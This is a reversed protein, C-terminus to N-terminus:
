FEEEIRSDIKGILQRLTLAYSGSKIKDNIEGSKSESHLSIEAFRRNM